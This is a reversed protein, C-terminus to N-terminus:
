DLRSSAHAEIGHENLVKAFARAYAEKRDISQGYNHVWIYYGRSYNKQAKDHKKTWRAWATNGAFKIEAFGCAGVHVANWDNFDPGVSPKCMRAAADGAEHAANYISQFDPSGSKTSHSKTEGSPGGSKLEAGKELLEAKVKEPTTKENKLDGIMRSATEFALDMNRIELCRGTAVYLAWLQRKTSTRM